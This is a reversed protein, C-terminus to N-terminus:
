VVVIIIKGPRLSTGQLQGPPVEIGLLDVVTPFIDLLEVIADSTTNRSFQTDLRPPIIILPVRAANEFLTLKAWSGHEGVDYGHDGFLVVWTTDAFGTAALSDLVRGVQRDMYSVSAYYARRLEAHKFAPVFGPLNDTKNTYCLSHVDQMGCMEENGSWSYKSPFGVPPYINAAPAVTSNPYLDYAWQPAFFGLHPRKMGLFLAFPDTPMHAAKWTLEAIGTTPTRRNSL